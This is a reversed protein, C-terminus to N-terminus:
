DNISFHHTDYPNQDHVERCSHDCAITKKMLSIHCESYSTTSIEFTWINTDLNLSKQISQMKEEQLYCIIKNWCQDFSELNLNNFDFKEPSLAEALKRNEMPLLTWKKQYRQEKEEPSDNNDFLISRLRGLWHIDILIDAYGDQIYMREDPIKKKFERLEENTKQEERTRAYQQHRKKKARQYDPFRGMLIGAKLLLSYDLGADILCEVMKIIETLKQTSGMPTRCLCQLMLSFMAPDIGKKSGKYTVKDASSLLEYTEEQEKEKKEEETIM